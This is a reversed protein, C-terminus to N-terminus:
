RPATTIKRPRRSCSSLLSVPHLPEPSIHPQRYPCLPCSCHTLWAIIYPSLVLIIHWPEPYPRGKKKKGGCPACRTKNNLALCYDDGVGHDSSSPVLCRFVSLSAEVVLLGWLWVYARPIGKAGPAPAPISPQQSKFGWGRCGHELYLSATLPPSLVRRTPWLLCASCTCNLVAGLGLM